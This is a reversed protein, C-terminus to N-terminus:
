AALTVIHRWTDGTCKWLIFCIMYDKVRVLQYLPFIVTRAMRFGDITHHIKMAMIIPPVKSRTRVASSTWTQAEPVVGMDYWDLIKLICLVLVARAAVFSEVM